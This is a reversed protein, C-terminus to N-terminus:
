SADVAAGIPVDVRTIEERAMPDPAVGDDIRMKVVIIQDNQHVAQIETGTAGDKCQVAILAKMDPAPTTASCTGPFTGVPRSIQKGTEDTTQLFIDGSSAGQTIGWSVVVKKALVAPAGDSGSGSGAGTTTGKKNKGPCGSVLLVFAAIALRKV